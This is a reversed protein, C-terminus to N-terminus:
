TLSLAEFVAVALRLMVTEAPTCTVILERLQAAVLRAEFAEVVQMAPRLAATGAPPAVTVMELLLVSSVAGAETATAAPAVDADNVTVAPLMVVSWAAVTVTASFPLELDADSERVAGTAVAASEAKCHLAALRAELADVVQVTVKVLAAGVPPAATVRAELLLRSVTGAETVTAAPPVEALKVALAPVM